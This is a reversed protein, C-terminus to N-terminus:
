EDIASSAVPGRAAREAALTARRRYARRTVAVGVAYGAILGAVLGPAVIVWAGPSSEVRVNTRFLVLPTDCASTTSAVRAEPREASM